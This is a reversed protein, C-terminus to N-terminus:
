IERHKQPGDLSQEDFTSTTDESTVISGGIDANHIQYMRGAINVSSEILIIQDVLNKQFNISSASFLFYCLSSAKKQCPLSCYKRAVILTAITGQIKALTLSIWQEIDKWEKINLKTESLVGIM